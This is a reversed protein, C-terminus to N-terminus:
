KSVIKGGRVKGIIKSNDSKFVLGKGSLFTINGEVITNNQLYLEEHNNVVQIIVDKTQSSQLITKDTALSLQEAFITTVAFLSGSITATNVKSKYIDASGSCCLHGKIESNRIQASGNATVKNLISHNARLSGNATVTNTVTTGNLSTSGDVNLDDVVGRSCITSAPDSECVQKNDTSQKYAYTNAITGLLIVASIIIKKLM